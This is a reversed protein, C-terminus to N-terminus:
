AAPCTKPPSGQTDAKQDETSPCICGRMQLEKHGLAFENKRKVSYSPVLCILPQRPQTSHLGYNNGMLVVTQRVERIEKWLTCQPTSPPLPHQSSIHKRLSWQIVATNKGCFKKKKKIHIQIYSHACSPLARLPQFHTNSEM